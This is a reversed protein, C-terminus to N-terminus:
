PDHSKSHLIIVENLITTDSLRNLMTQSIRAAEKADNRCVYDIIAFNFSPNMTFPRNENYVLSDISWYLHGDLFWDKGSFLAIQPGPGLM